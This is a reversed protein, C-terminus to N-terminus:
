YGIAMWIGDMDAPTVITFAGESKSTVYNTGTAFGTLFAAEIFSLGTQITGGVDLTDNSFEGYVIQRSGLGGPISQTIVSTFAM